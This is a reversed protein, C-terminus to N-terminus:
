NECLGDFPLSKRENITVGRGVSGELADFAISLTLPRCNYMATFKSKIKNLVVIILLCYCLLLM